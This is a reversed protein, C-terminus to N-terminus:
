ELMASWTLVAQPLPCTGDTCSMRVLGALGKFGRERASGWYISKQAHLDSAFALLLVMASIIASRLNMQSLLGVIQEANNYDLL